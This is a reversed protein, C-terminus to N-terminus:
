RPRISSIQGGLPGLSSYNGPGFTQCFGNFNADQCAEWNGQRIIMSQARDNFGVNAFNSIGGDVAYSMGNFNNQDYLVVPDGGQHPGDGYGNVQFDGRCGRDVWVYNPGNGFTAGLQCPASSQQRILQISTIDNLSTQCQTYGGNFSACSLRESLQSPMQITVAFEASCGHDVWVSHPTFGNSNGQQCLYPPTSQDATIHADVITGGNTDVECEHHQFLQSTCTVSQTVTQAPTMLASTDSQMSGTESSGSCGWAALGAVLTGVTRKFMM